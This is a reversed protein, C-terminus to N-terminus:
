NSFTQVSAPRSDLPVTCPATAVQVTLLDRFPRLCGNNM